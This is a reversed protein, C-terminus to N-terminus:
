HAPAGEGGEGPGVSSGARDTRLVAFNMQSYEAQACTMMIMKIVMFNVSNDSQIIVNGDFTKDQHTLKWQDRNRELREKLPPLVFDVYRENTIDGADMVFQGEFAIKAKSIAIIPARELEVANFAKPLVIDKTITLIEGSASFTLLLFIVLMTLMDVMPTVNLDAIVNARGHGDAVKRIFALPVHKVLHKSPKTVFPM